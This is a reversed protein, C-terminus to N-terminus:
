HADNCDSGECQGAGQDAYRQSTGVWGSFSSVSESLQIHGLGIAAIFSKDSGSNWDSDNHLVSHLLRSLSSGNVRSGPSSSRQGELPRRKKEERKFSNHTLIGRLHAAYISRRTLSIYASEKM